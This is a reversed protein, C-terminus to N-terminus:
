LMKEMLYYSGGYMEAEGAVDFGAKKYTKYAPINCKAVSLRVSTCGREKLIPLMRQVMGYALGKGRYSRAVVVRALERHRGDHNSWFDFGDLENEPVVSVAGIICCDEVLVFLNETEMDHEIEQMEPYFENWVCFGEGIVSKYLSLIENKESELPLRLDIRMKMMGFFSTIDNYKGNSKRKFMRQFTVENPVENHSLGFELYRLM